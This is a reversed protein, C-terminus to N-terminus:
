SSALLFVTTSVVISMLSQSRLCNSSALGSRSRAITRSNASASIPASASASQPASYPSREGSRTLM